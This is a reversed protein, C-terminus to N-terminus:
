KGALADVAPQYGQEASQQLYARGQEFNGLHEYAMGCMYTDHMDGPDYKLADQFQALSDAYRGEGFYVNGLNAHGEPLNDRLSIARELESQAETLLPMTSPTRSGNTWKQGLSEGLNNHAQESMPNYRIAIRYDAIAGDFDGATQKIRGLSLYSVSSRPNVRLGQTFLDKTNTWVPLQRFSLIALISVLLVGVPIAARLPVSALAGAAALAIGVMAFYMYRDAVSSFAQFDFPVIGSVPLLSVVFIGFAIVAWPVRRRQVSAIAGIAIPIVIMAYAWGHRLLWMPTRGYDPGLMWPVLSKWLYFTLTDGMVFPRQWLATIPIRIGAINEAQKTLLIVPIAALLWGVLVALRYKPIGLITTKAVDTPADDVNDPKLVVDILLAIVPLSVASSKSLLALIYAVTSAGLLWGSGGGSEPDRHLLYFYLALLSFFGCLVDKLGTVWAVPEVQLPHAAFIAAGVAASWDLRALSDPQRVRANAPDIKTKAQTLLLRIVLFVLLANFTHLVINASHYVHPDFHAITTSNPGDQTGALFAWLMRTIPIYASYYPVTWLKGLHSTATPSYFINETVNENDDWDVFDFNSARWFVGLSLAVLAIGIIAWRM